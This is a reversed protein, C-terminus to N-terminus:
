NWASLRLQELLRERARYRGEQPGRSGDASLALIFFSLALVGNYGSKILVSFLRTKVYHYKFTARARVLLKQPLKM